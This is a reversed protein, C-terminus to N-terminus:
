IFQFIIHFQYRNDGLTCASKIANVLWVVSRIAKIRRKGSFFLFLGLAEYYFCRDLNSLRVASVVKSCEHNYHIKNIERM